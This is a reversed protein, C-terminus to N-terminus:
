GAQRARNRHIMAVARHMGLGEYFPVLEPDCALDVMYLERLQALMRQVLQRGIGRGQWAPLVELLPLYACLVGDSVATVFGVVTQGEWALVVAASGRLLALHTEPSPRQPWGVFFGGQLHEVGVGELSTTYSIEM